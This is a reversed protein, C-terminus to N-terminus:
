DNKWMIRNESFSVILLILGFYFSLIYGALAMGNHSSQVFGVVLGIAMLGYFAMCIGAVVKYRTGKRSACVVESLSMVIGALLAFLTSIVAFLGGGGLLIWLILLTKSSLIKIVLSYAIGCIFGCAMLALYSCIVLVIWSFLRKM